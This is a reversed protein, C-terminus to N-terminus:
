WFSEPVFVVDGEQLKIDKKKGKIVDKLNVKIKQEQGGNKRTITIATQKAGEAV